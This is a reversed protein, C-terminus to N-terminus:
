QETSRPQNSRGGNGGHNGGTNGGGHRSNNRYNNNGGRGRNNKKGRYNPNHNNNRNSSSSGQKQGNSVVNDTNSTFLATDSGSGVVADAHSEEEFELMTRVEDFPPLPVRHQVNTRFTKYDESLGQLLRLVMRDESVPAGVNRLNDSLIKIRSCYPKVGSFHELKTNTFQTDLFLARASKNGQFLRVLRNWADHASDEQNLITNLLDHSITGYIWQRVIDDLRQWQLKAAEDKDSESDNTAASSGSSPIIHDLVLNARCHLTFLSSWSLYQTGEYDLTIPICTKINAVTTAPHLKSIEAM